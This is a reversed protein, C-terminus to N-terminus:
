QIVVTLRDLYILLPWNSRTEASSMLGLTDNDNDCQECFPIVPLFTDYLTNSLSQVVIFAASHRYLLDFLVSAGNCVRDFWSARHRLAMQLRARRVLALEHALRSM